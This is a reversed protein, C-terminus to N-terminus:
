PVKKKQKEKDSLGGAIAWAIDKVISEQLLNQSITDNIEDFLSPSVLKGISYPPIEM